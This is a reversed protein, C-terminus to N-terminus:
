QWFIIVKYGIKSQRDKSFFFHLLSIFQEINQKSPTNEKKVRKRHWGRISWSVRFTWRWSM